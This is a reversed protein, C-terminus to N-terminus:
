TLLLLRVYANLRTYNRKAYFRLFSKTPPQEFTPEQRCSWPADFRCVELGTNKDKRLCYVPACRHEYCRTLISSLEGFTWTMQKFPLALTSGEDLLAQPGPNPHMASIHYGWYQAARAISFATRDHGLERDPDPVGRCYYLGHSHTSGRAQWEYRDWSDIVNFKPTIVHKKFLDFRQHFYYAVVHPNDRVFDHALRARGSSTATKWEEFRPM